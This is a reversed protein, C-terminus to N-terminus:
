DGKPLVIIRHHPLGLLAHVANTVGANILPDQVGRAVVVAGRYSVNKEYVILPKEGGRSDRIIVPKDNRSEEVTERSGGSGDEEWSRRLSFDNNEALVQEPGSEPTIYVVAGSVGEIKNLVEAIERSLYDTLYEPYHERVLLQKEGAYADDPEPYTDTDRGRGRDSDAFWSGAILFFIGTILLIVMNRKFKNNASGNEGFFIIRRFVNFIEMGAEGKM